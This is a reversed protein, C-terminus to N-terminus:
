VRDASPSRNPPKLECRCGSLLNAVSGDVIQSQFHNQEAESESEAFDPNSADSDDSVEPDSQDSDQETSDSYITQGDSEDDEGDTQDAEQDEEQSSDAPEGEQASSKGPEEEKDYFQSLKDQFSKLTEPGSAFKSEDSDGASDSESNNRESESLAALRQDPDAKLLMMETIGSTFGLLARKALRPRKTIFEKKHRENGQEDYLRLVTRYRKKIRQVHCTLVGSLGLASALTHINEPKYAKNALGRKDAETLYDKLDLLENGQRKIQEHVIKNVRKGLGTKTKDICKTVVLTQAHSTPPQILCLICCVMASRIFILESGRKM